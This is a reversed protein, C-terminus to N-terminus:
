RIGGAERPGRARALSENRGAVAGGAGGGRARRAGPGAAVDGDRMPRAARHLADDARAELRRAGCDHSGYTEESTEVTVKLM